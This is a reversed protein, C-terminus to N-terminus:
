EQTHRHPHKQILNVNARDVSYLLNGEGHQHAESMWDTSLRFLTLPQILFFENDEAENNELRSM